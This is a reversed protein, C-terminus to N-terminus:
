LAVDVLATWEQELVRRKAYVTASAAMARVSRHVGPQKATGKDEGDAKLAVISRTVESALSVPDSQWRRGVVHGVRSILVARGTVDADVAGVRILSKQPSDHLITVEDQEGNEAEIMKGGLLRDGRGSLGGCRGSTFVGAGIIEYIGELGTISEAADAPVKAFVAAVNIEAIANPEEAAVEHDVRYVSMAFIEVLQEQVGLPKAVIWVLKGRKANLLVPQIAVIQQPPLVFVEIRGEGYRTALVKDIRGAAQLIM